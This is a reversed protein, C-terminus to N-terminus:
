DLDNADPVTEKASECIDRNAFWMIDAPNGRSNFIFEVSEVGGVSDKKVNMEDVLNKSRLYRHFTEPTPSQHMAESAKVCVGKEQDILHWDRKSQPAEDSFAPAALAISASAILATTKKTV